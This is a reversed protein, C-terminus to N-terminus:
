DFNPLLSSRTGLVDPESQELARALRALYARRDIEVAGLSALHDTCWQVDLLTMSADRMLDVLSMLAVKSADRQLYFM